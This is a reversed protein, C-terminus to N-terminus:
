KLWSQTERIAYYKYYIQELYLNIMCYSWLDNFVLAMQPIFRSINTQKSENSCNNVVIM